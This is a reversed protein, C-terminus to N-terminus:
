SVVKREALDQLTKQRALRQSQRIRSQFNSTAVNTAPLDVTFRLNKADWLAVQIVAKEASWGIHKAFARASFSAGKGSPTYRLRFMAPVPRSAPVLAMQLEEKDWYLLVGVAKLRRLHETAEANLYMAGTPKISIVSGASNTMRSEFLMFPM